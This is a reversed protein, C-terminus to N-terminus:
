LKLEMALPVWVKWVKIEGDLSGSYVMYGTGAGNDSDDDDSDSNEAAVALCKIPGGHGELIGLCSYSKGASRRWLRVTKDASGSCVLEGVIRVCFIAKKHGLLSGVVVMHGGDSFNRESAIMVGSCAGSILVSSNDDYALANVASKHHQLTDILDHKQERRNNRWVEHAYGDTLPNM